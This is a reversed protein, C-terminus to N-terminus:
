NLCDRAVKNTTQKITSRRTCGANIPAANRSIRSRQWGRGGFSAISRRRIPGRLNHSLDISGYRDPECIEHSFEELQLVASRFMIRPNHKQM